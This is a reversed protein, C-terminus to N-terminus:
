KVFKVENGFEWTKIYVYRNKEDIQDSLDNKEFEEGWDDSCENDIFKRVHEIEDDTLEEDSIVDIIFLSEDINFDTMKIKIDKNINLKKSENYNNFDSSVIEFIKTILKEDIDNLTYENNLENIIDNWFEDIIDNFIESKSMSIYDDYEEENDSNVDLRYEYEDIIFNLDIDYEKELKKIDKISEIDFKTDDVQYLVKVPSTFKYNYM